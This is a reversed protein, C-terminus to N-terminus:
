GRPPSPLGEGAWEAISNNELRRTVGGEASLASTFHHAGFSPELRHSTAGGGPVGSRPEGGEGRQLLTLYLKVEGKRPPRDPTVYCLPTFGSRTPTDSQCFRECSSQAVVLGIGFTNQPRTQAFELLGTKVEAALDGDTWIDDIEGTVAGLEDDFKIAVLM